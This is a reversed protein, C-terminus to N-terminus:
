SSVYTGTTSATTNATVAVNRCAPTQDFGPAAGILDRLFKTGSRAAGILIIPSGAGTTM